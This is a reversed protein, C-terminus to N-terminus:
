GGGRLPHLPQVGGVHYHSGDAIPSTPLIPTSTYSTGNADTRYSNNVGNTGSGWWLYHSDISPGSPQVRVIPGVNNTNGAVNGVVM